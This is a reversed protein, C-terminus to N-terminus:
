ISSFVSHRPFPFTSQRWQPNLQKAKCHPNGPYLPEQSCWCTDPPPSWLGPVDELILTLMLPWRSATARVIFPDKTCAELLTPFYGDTPSELTSRSADFRVAGVKAFTIDPRTRVCFICSVSREAINSQTLKRQKLLSCIRTSELTWQFLLLSRQNQPCTM